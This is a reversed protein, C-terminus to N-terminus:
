TGSYQEDGDVETPAILYAHCSACRVDLFYFGIKGEDFKVIAAFQDCGCLCAHTPGAWRYDPGDTGIESFLASWPQSM